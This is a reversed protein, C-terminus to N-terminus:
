LEVCVGELRGDCGCHQRVDHAADDIIGVCHLDSGTGALSVLNKELNPDSGAIETTDDTATTAGRLANAGDHACGGRVVVDIDVDIEDVGLRAHVCRANGLTQELDPSDALRVSDLSVHEDRQSGIDVLSSM